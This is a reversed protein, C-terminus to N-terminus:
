SHKPRSWCTTQFTWSTRATLRKPQVFWQVEVDSVKINPSANNSRKPGPSASGDRRGISVIDLQAQSKFFEGRSPFRDDRERDPDDIVKRHVAGASVGCHKVVTAAERCPLGGRLRTM